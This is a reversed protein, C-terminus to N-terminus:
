GLHPQCQAITMSICISQIHHSIAVLFLLMMVLITCYFYTDLGERAVRGIVDYSHSLLKVTRRGWCVQNLADMVVFLNEDKAIM